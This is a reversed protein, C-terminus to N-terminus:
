GRFHPTKPPRPEDDEDPHIINVVRDTRFHPYSYEMLDSAKRGNPIRM